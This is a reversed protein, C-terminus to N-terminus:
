LTAKAIAARAENRIDSLADLAIDKEDADIQAKDLVYRLSDLLEDRSELAERVIRHAEYDEPPNGDGRDNGTGADLLQDLADFPSQESM